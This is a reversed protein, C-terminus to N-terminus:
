PNVVPDAPDAPDEKFLEDTKKRFAVHKQLFIFRIQAVRRYAALTLPSNLEDLVDGLWDDIDILAEKIKDVDEKMDNESDEIDDLMRDINEIFSVNTTETPDLESRIKLLYAKQKRQDIRVDEMYLYISGFVKNLSRNLAVLTNGSIIDSVSIMSGILDTVAEAITVGLRSVSDSIQRTKEQNNDIIKERSPSGLQGCAVLFSSLFFIICITLKKKM